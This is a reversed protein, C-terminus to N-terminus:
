AGHKSLKKKQNKRTTDLKLLRFVGVSIDVARSPSCQPDSVHTDRRDKQMRM